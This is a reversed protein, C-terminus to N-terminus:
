EQFLSNFFPKIDESVSTCEMYYQTGKHVTKADYVFVGDNSKLKYEIVAGGVSYTQDYEIHSYKNVIVDNSYLKLTAYTSINDTIELIGGKTIGEVTKYLCSSIITYRSYDIYSIQEQKLGSGFEEITTAVFSLNDQLYTTASSTNGTPPTNNLALPITVGCIIGVCAVSAVAPVWRPLRRREPKAPTVKDKIEEWVESFDRVKIDNASEQLKRELEKNDM